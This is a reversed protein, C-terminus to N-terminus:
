RHGGAPKYTRAECNKGLDPDPAWGHNGPDPDALFADLDALIREIVTSVRHAPYEFTTWDYSGLWLLQWQDANNSWVDLTLRIHDPYDDHDEVWSLALVVITHDPAHAVWTGHGDVTYSPPSWNLSGFHTSMSVGKM